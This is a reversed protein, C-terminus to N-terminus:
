VEGTNNVPPLLAYSKLRIGVLLVSVILSCKNQRGTFADPWSWETSPVHDRTHVNSNVSHLNNSQRRSQFTFPRIPLMPVYSTTTPTPLMRWPAWFSVSCTTIICSHTSQQPVCILKMRDNSSVHRTHAANSRAKSVDIKFIFVVFCPGEHSFKKLIPYVIYVTSTSHIYFLANSLHM